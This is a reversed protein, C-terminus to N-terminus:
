QNDMAALNNAIEALKKFGGVRKALETIECLVNELNKDGAEPSADGIPIGPSAPPLQSTSTRKGRSGLPATSKAMVTTGKM